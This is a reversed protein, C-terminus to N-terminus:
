SEGCVCGLNFEFLIYNSVVFHGYKLQRKQWSSALGPNEKLTLNEIYIFILYVVIWDKIYYRFNKILSVYESDFVDFNDHTLLSCKQPLLVLWTLM